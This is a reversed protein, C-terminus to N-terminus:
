TGHWTRGLNRRLAAGDPSRRNAMIKPYLTKLMLSNSSLPYTPAPCEALELALQIDM